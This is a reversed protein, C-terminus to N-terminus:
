PRNIKIPLVKYVTLSGGVRPVFLRNSEIDFHIDIGDIKEESLPLTKGDKRIHWIRPDDIVTVFYGGNGDHTIGDFDALASSPKPAPTNNIIKGNQRSFRNWYQGGHILHQKDVLLGNAKELQIPDDAIVVLKEGILQYLKRSASGSVYVEGQQSIAVDNLLPLKKSKPAPIRKQIKQTALDIIVLSDMDVAYLLDQYVALGTPSHLGDIWQLELHNGQANVRSIFGSNDKAYRFINSIYIMDRKPDYAASEPLKFTNTLSWLPQIIRKPSAEVISHNILSFLLLVGIPLLRSNVNAIMKEPM